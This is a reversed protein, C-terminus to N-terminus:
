PLKNNKKLWDYISVDNAGPMDYMKAINESEAPNMKIYTDIENKAQFESVPKPANELNKLTEYSNGLASKYAGDITSDFAAMRGKIIAENLGQTKNIGPFISAIDKGEQESYATGSVANRYVQLQTQIQTALDVLQPNDVDGLRNIVKEFGGKFISTSGGKAYFDTLTADLDVMANKATEYKEVSTANAGTMLGKAQNKVVTLPDEGNLVANTIAKAQDKTFKGSGLITQLIGAYESPLSAGSAKFAIAEAEADAINKGKASAYASAYAEASKKRVERADEQDRYQQFSMPTLGRREAERRAQIYEGMEGTATQLWDGANNLAEEVSKAGAVAERIATPAGNAALASQVEQIPKTVRDYLDKEMKEQEAVISDYVAKLNNTIEKDIAIIQDNSEKVMKFNSEQFGQLMQSLVQSERAQLNSVAALGQRVARQVTASSGTPSYTGLSRAAAMGMANKYTENAEYQMEITTDWQKKTADLIAQQASNLPFAGSQFQALTSKVNAADSQLQRVSDKYDSEAQDRESIELPPQTVPIINGKTDYQIPATGSYGAAQALALTNQTEARKKQVEAQQAEKKQVEAPNPVYGPASTPVVQQYTTGNPLQGGTVVMNGQPDYTTNTNQMAASQQQQGTVKENLTKQIGLADQTAASSSMVAPAPTYPTTTTALQTYDPM